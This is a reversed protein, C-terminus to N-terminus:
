PHHRQSTSAMMPQVVAAFQAFDKALAEALADNLDGPSAWEVARLVEVTRAGAEKVTTQPPLRSLEAQLRRMWDDRGATNRATVSVGVLIPSWVDRLYGGFHIKCLVAAGDGATQWFEISKRPKATAKVGPLVGIVRAQLARLFTVVEDRVPPRRYGNDFPDTSARTVDAEVERGAIDQVVVQITLERETRQVASVVHPVLLYQTDMAYLPMSVLALESLSLPDDHGAFRRALREM